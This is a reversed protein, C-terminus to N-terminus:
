LFIGLFIVCSSPPSDFSLSSSLSCVPPFSPFSGRGNPQVLIFDGFQDDTFTAIPSGDGVCDGGDGGEGRGTCVVM